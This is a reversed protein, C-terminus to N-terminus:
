KQVNWFFHLKPKLSTLVYLCLWLRPSESEARNHKTNSCKAIFKAVHKIGIVKSFHRSQRLWFDYAHGRLRPRRESDGHWHVSHLSSRFNDKSGKYLFFNYPPIYKKARTFINYIGQNISTFCERHDRRNTRRNTPHNTM